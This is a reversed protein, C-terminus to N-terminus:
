IKTLAQKLTSHANELLSPYEGVYKPKRKNAPPKVIVILKHEVFNLQDDTIGTEGFWVIHTSGAKRASRLIDTRYQPYKKILIQVSKDGHVTAWLAVYEDLFEEKLRARLSSTNRTQSQGIYIVPKESDRPSKSWAYWGPIDSVTKVLQLYLEQFPAFVEKDNQKHPIEPHQRIFGFLKKFEIHDFQM